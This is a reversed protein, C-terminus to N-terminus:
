ISVYSNNIESLYTKNYINKLETLCGKFLLTICKSSNAIKQTKHNNFCDDTKVINSKYFDINENKNIDLLLNKMKNVLLVIEHYLKTNKQKLQSIFSLNKFYLASFISQYTKLKKISLIMDCTTSKLWNTYFLHQNNQSICEINEYPYRRDFTINKILCYQKNGYKHNYIHFYVTFFTNYLKAKGIIFYSRKFIKKEQKSKIACTSIGLAYNKLFYSYKDEKPFLDLDIIFHYAM